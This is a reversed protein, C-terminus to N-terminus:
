AFDKPQGLRSPEIGIEFLAEKLASLSPACADLCIGCEHSLQRPTVKPEVEFGCKKLHREAKLVRHQGEFTLLYHESQSQKLDCQKLGMEKAETISPHEGCVPCDSNQLFSIQRHKMTKADVSLLSGSLYGETELLVKTIETAQICAIIGAVAGLTGVASCNPVDEADPSDEFLCRLCPTGPVHTFVNGSWRLVGGHSFPKGELVCADNILYKTPFNDSGDMVIDVERVLHRASAECFRERRAEVTIEPNLRLLQDKAAEVKPRGVDATSFLIQRGLNTIDVLDDDMLILHGVGSTALYQLAPCGLGGVGVM